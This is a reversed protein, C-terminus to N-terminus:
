MKNSSFSPMACTTQFSVVSALGRVLQEGSFLLMFLANMCKTEIITSSRASATGMWLVIQLLLLLLSNEVPAPV